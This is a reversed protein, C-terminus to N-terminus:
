LQNKKLPSRQFIILALLRRVNLCWTAMSNLNRFDKPLLYKFGFFTMKVPSISNFTMKDPSICIYLTQGVLILILHTYQRCCLVLNKGNRM